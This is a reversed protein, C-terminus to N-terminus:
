SSEYILSRSRIAWDHSPTLEIAHNFDTLAEDYRGMLRYTKGRHALYDADNPDLEIARSLDTLAEDFRGM